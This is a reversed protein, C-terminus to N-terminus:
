NIVLTDFNLESTLDEQNSPEYDDIRVNGLIAVHCHKKKGGKKKYLKFGDPKVFFLVPDNNEDLPELNLNEIKYRDKGPVILINYFLHYKGHYEYCPLKFSYWERDIKLLQQHTIPLKSKGHKCCQGLYSKVSCSYVKKYGIDNCWNIDPVSGKIIGESNIKDLARSNTSHVLLGNKYPITYDM